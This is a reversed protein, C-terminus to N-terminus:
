KINMNLVREFFFDRAKKEERAEEHSRGWSFCEEHANEYPTESRM